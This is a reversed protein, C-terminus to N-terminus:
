QPSQLSSGLHLGAPAPGHHPLAATEAAVALPKPRRRSLTTLGCGIIFTVPLIFFWGLIPLLYSFVLVLGGRLATKWPQESEEQAPSLRRGIHTALAAVGIHAYFMYLCILVISLIKGLPGLLNGCAIVALVLAATLPLGVLFPKLFSVRCRAVARAVTEPWIGYCLLWFGILGLMFGLVSLFIAMTDAMLM